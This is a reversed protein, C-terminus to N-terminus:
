KGHILINITIPQKNITRNNRYFKSWNNRLYEHKRIFQIINKDNIIRYFKKFSKKKHCSKGLADLYLIPINLM